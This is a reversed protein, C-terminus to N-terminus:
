ARLMAQQFNIQGKEVSQQILGTLSKEMKATGM